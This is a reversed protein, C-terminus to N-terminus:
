FASLQQPQPPAPRKPQWALEQRRALLHRYLNWDHQTVRAQKSLNCRLHATALNEWVHGPYKADSVPIIHDISAGEPNSREVEPDIPESCLHCTWNDREFIELLSIREVAKGTLRYRRQKKNTLNSCRESCYIKARHEQKAISEGCTACERETDALGPHARNWMRCRVSCTLRRTDATEFPDGCVLCAMSWTAALQRRRAALGACRLSCHVIRDSKAIFETSCHPCTAPRARNAEHQKEQAKYCARCYRANGHRGSLDTGCGRCTQSAVAVGLSRAKRLRAGCKRSCTVADSRTSTFTDGCAPCARTYNTM